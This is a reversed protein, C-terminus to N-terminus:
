KGAMAGEIAKGDVSAAPPVNALRLLTPVIDVTNAASVTGTAIGKGWLVLIPNQEAFRGHLGGKNGAGSMTYGPLPSVIWDGSRNDHCGLEDLDKRDLLRVGTIATLARRAKEKEEATLAARFYVLRVGAPLVVIQTGAELEKASTAVRFGAERLAAAPERSAQETEFASMGHDSAFAIVTRDYLGQRKLEELLGGIARDISLVAERVEDSRPGHEHGAHDTAGYIAAVFGVEPRRLFGIAAATTKESDAYGPAAYFTAGRKQLMFHNVAATRWRAKQLTEGITEARNDRPAEVIRDLEKVYQANAAIGTTRPYSGTVLSTMNPTTVTPFVNRVETVRTGEAILREINPPHYWEVYDSRFGDAILFLIRAPPEPRANLGALALGLVVGLSCLTKRLYIVSELAIM